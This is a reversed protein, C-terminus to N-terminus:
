QITVQALVAEILSKVNTGLLASIPVAQVDGGYDELQPLTL